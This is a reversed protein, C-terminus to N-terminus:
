IWGFRGWVREKGEGWKGVAGDWLLVWGEVVKEVGKEVVWFDLRWVEAFGVGTITVLFGVGTPGFGVGM